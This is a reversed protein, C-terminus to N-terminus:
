GCRFVGAEDPLVDGHPLEVDAEADEAAGQGLGGLGDQGVDAVPEDVGVEVAECGVSLVARSFEVRTNEPEGYGVGGLRFSVRERPVMVVNYTNCLHAPACGLAVHGFSAQPALDM